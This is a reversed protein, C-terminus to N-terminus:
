EHSVLLKKVIGTLDEFWVPKFYIEAGLDRLEEAATRELFYDGTIVAVPLHVAHPLARLRRLFDLGDSIPMRLDLIIADPASAAVRELGELGNGATMVAYGELALMKTFVSITASDDEIILVAAVEPRRHVASM